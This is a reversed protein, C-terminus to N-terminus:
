AGDYPEPIGSWVFVISLEDTYTVKWGSTVLLINALASNRPLLISHPHQEKLFDQWGQDVHIMRVYSKLFEPGYFDHRDDVVVKVQPYLRYILYGGWYDPALVPGGVHQAQLYNVAEVPMRKPGFHANMIEDSGVRGGHIAIVLIVVIAIAPWLHRKLGCEIASKSEAFRDGIGIAPVLPGVITALLIASIPLNRSATLGAYVAFLAVLISSPRSQRGRVALAALAILLLSLFCKQAIGHFNPSQFEDIHDMLFSDTLYGYIHQYLKWGYPNVLSALISLMGVWTLRRVRKGAAVRLVISELRSEKATLYSWLASVWFIGLVVFGLLFGGHVNVWIMMLVPLLWLIRDRRVHIGALANRESLDLIWFWALTFLWSLVHPRALFHITSASLALLTLVLALFFNTGRIVLLRFLWGFTAAIVFATLWVVGNLGAVHDLWGAAVDYLWEWAFWPKGAMSASFPDVRPIAHIALIQQGTRIHWGIGADGLLRVSLATFTLVTLVAIFILDAASPLIWRAWVPAPNGRSVEASSSISGDAM